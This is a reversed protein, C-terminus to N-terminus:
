FSKGGNELASKLIIKSLSTKAQNYNKISENMKEKIELTQELEFAIRKQERLPIIPVLIKSLSHVTIGKITTGTSYQNIQTQGLESSLFAILYAPDIQDDMVRLRIVNDSIVLQKKNLNRVLAVNGVTGARTMVIDNEELLAKEVLSKNELTDSINEIEFDRINNAKVYVFADKGSKIRDQRIGIAIDVISGLNKSPTQIKKIIEKLNVFFNVDMRKMESELIASYPISDGKGTLVFKKFSVATEKLNTFSNTERDFEPTSFFIDYNDLASKNTKELVLISFKATTEFLHTVSQLSIIGLIKFHDLIFERILRNSENALLSDPVIIVLKGKTKLLQWSREIFLWEIRKNGPINSLAFHRVKDRDVSMGFPSHTIVADFFDPKIKNNSIVNLEEITDLSDHLFIQGSKFGGMAITTRALDVMNQNIDVGVFNANNKAVLSLIYGTGCALDLVNMQRNLSILDVLLEGIPRPTFFEGYQKTFMQTLHEASISYSDFKSRILSYKQLRKVLEFILENPLNISSHSDDSVRYQQYLKQIKYTVEQANANAVFNIKESSEDCAKTFLIKYFESILEVNSIRLGLSQQYSYIYEYLNRLFSDLDNIEVLDRKSIIRSKSVAHDSSPIDSIENIAIKNKDVKFSYDLYGDTLVLYENGLVISQSLLKETVDSDFKKLDKKVEILIFPKSNRYVVIDLRYRTPGIPLSVETRIDHTSYGYDLVLRDRYYRVREVEQRFQRM